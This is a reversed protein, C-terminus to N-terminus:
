FVHRRPYAHPHSRRSSRCACRRWELFFFLSQKEPAPVLEYGGLFLRGCRAWPRRLRGLRRPAGGCASSLLAFNFAM